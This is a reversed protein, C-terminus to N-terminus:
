FLILILIGFEEGFGRANSMLALWVGLLRGFGLLGAGLGFGLFLTETALGFWLGVIGSLLAPSKKIGLPALALFIGGEPSPPIQHAPARTIQHRQLPPCVQSSSRREEKGRDGSRSQCFRQGRTYRPHGTHRAIIQELVANAEAIDSTGRNIISNLKAVDGASLEASVKMLNDKYVRNLALGVAKKSVLPFWNM